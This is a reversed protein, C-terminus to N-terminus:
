FIIVKTSLKTPNGATSTLFSCCYCYRARYQDDGVVEQTVTGLINFKTSIVKFLPVFLLKLMPQYLTQFLETM